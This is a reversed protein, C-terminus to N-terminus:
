RLADYSTPMTLVTGIELAAGPNLRAIAAAMASTDFVDDSISEFSDGAKVVYAQHAANYGSPPQNPVYRPMTRGGMLAQAARAVYAQDFNDSTDTKRGAPVAIDRHRTLRTMPIECSDGLWAVLKVVAAMQASPYPEVGDGVNCIEIGVSFDNVNSIGGFISSGAHWARKSDPVCRVIAGSRDVVYHASVKSGPSQFFRATQEASSLMATHHLVIASVPAGSRDGFNPSPIEIAAPPTVSLGRFTGSNGTVSGSPRLGTGCAVTLISAAAIAAAMNWNARM